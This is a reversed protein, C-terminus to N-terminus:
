HNPAKGSPKPKVGLAWMLLDWSNVFEVGPLRVNRAEVPVLVHEWDWM